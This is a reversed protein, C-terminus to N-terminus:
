QDAPRALLVRPGTVDGQEWAEGSATVLDLLGDDNVDLPRVDTSFSAASFPGYFVLPATTYGDAAALFLGNSGVWADDRGDGDFDALDLQLFAGNRMLTVTPADLLGTPLQRFLLLRNFDTAVIDTRGDANADGLSIPPADGSFTMGVTQALEFGGAPLARWVEFRGRVGSHIARIGLIYDVRKDGTVDGLATHSLYNPYETWPTIGVTSAPALTGDATQLRTVIQLSCRDLHVLDPRADANADEIVLSDARHNVFQCPGLTFSKITFGGTGTSLAVFLESDGVGALDAAGDGNLDGAAMAGTVPMPLKSQTPRGPGGPDLLDVSDPNEPPGQGAPGSKFAIEDRGDGDFDAVLPNKVAFGTNIRGSQHWHQPVGVSVFRHEGASCFDGSDRCVGTAISHLGPAVPVYSMHGDRNGGLDVEDYDPPARVTWRYQLKTRYSYLTDFQTNFSGTADLAIPVGPAVDPPRMVVPVPEGDPTPFQVPEAAVSYTLSDHAVHVGDSVRVTLLYHGPLDPTFQPSPSGAAELTAVSGIPALAISWDFALWDGDGDTSFLANPMIEEGVVGDSRSAGGVQPILDGAVATVTTADQMNTVRRAFDPVGDDGEDLLVAAYHVNLPRLWAADGTARLVLTGGGYATGTDASTQQFWFGGGVTSFTAYGEVGDYVRGAYTEAVRTDVPPSESRRDIVVDRLWAMEQTHNDLVVLDLELRRIVPIVEKLERAITGSISYSIPGSLIDLRAIELTTLETVDGLPLRQIRLKFQGDWSSTGETYDVFTVTLTGLGHNLRGILRASGGDPGDQTEDISRTIDGYSDALGSLVDALQIATWTGLAVDEANDANITMPSTAGTYTVSEPAPPAPNGGDGGGSGGSGGSGGGGGCAGLALGLTTLIIRGIWACRRGPVPSGHAKALHNV